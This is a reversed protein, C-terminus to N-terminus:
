GNTFVRAEERLNFPTVVIEELETACAVYYSEGGVDYGCHPCLISNSSKKEM